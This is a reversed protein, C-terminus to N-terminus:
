KVKGDAALRAYDGLVATEPADGLYQEIINRVRVRYYYSWHGLGHLASEQCAFHGLGLTERLLALVAMDFTKRRPDNPEGHIPMVDWWMYCIANLPSLAEPHEQGHSPLNTCRTFFLEAYLHKMAHLCELRAAEPLSSDILLYMHDSCYNSTLYWFGQNLQADSFQGVSQLPTSFLRTLYALTVEAPADWEPADPSFYWADRAVPHDFCHAIWAEYSPYASHDM